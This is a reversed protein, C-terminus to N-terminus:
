RTREAHPPQPDLLWINGSPETQDFVFQRDTIATGFPTSGWVHQPDHFHRVLFPDGVPTGRRPDIHQAYLCRFGDSELLLYLLRSDPSWGCARNNDGRLVPVDQWEDDRPVTGPRLPAIRIGNRESVVLWRDDPSVDLRGAASSPGLIPVTSGDDIDLVQM